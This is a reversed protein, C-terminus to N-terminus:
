PAPLATGYGVVRSCGARAIHQLTGIWGDGSDYTPAIYIEVGRAYLVHRALPM